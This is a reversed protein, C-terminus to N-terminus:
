FLRQLKSSLLHHIKMISPIGPKLTQFGDWWHCTLCADLRPGRHLFTQTTGLEALSPTSQSVHKWKADGRGEITRNLQMFM